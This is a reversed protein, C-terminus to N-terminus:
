TRCILRTRLTSKRALSWRIAACKGSFRSQEAKGQAEVNTKTRRGIVARVTDVDENSILWSMVYNPLLLAYNLRLLSTIWPLSPLPAGFSIRNWSQHRM